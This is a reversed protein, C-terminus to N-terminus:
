ASTEPLLFVTKDNSYVVAVTDFVVAVTDFVDAAKVISSYAVTQLGSAEKYLGSDTKEARNSNSKDM